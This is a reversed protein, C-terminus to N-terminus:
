GCCAAVDGRAGCRFCPDRSVRALVPEPLVQYTRPTDHITPHSNGGREDWILDRGAPRGHLADLLLASAKEQHAQRSIFEDAKIGDGLRARSYLSNDALHNM